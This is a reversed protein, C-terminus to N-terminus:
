MLHRFIIDCDTVIHESMMVSQSIVPISASPSRLGGGLQEVRRVHLHLEANGVYRM